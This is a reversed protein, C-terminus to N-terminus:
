IFSSERNIPTTQRSDLVRPGRPKIKMARISGCVDCQFVPFNALDQFTGTKLRVVLGNPEGSLGKEGYGMRGVLRNQNAYANTPVPVQNVNLSTKLRVDREETHLFRIM